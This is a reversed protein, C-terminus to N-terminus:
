LCSNTINYENAKLNAMIVTNYPSIYMENPRRKYTINARGRFLKLAKEYDDRSVNALRLLQDLSYKGRDDKDMDIVVTSLKLVTAKAKKLSEKDGNARSIVTKETTPWPADFRCYKGKKKKCTTTCRHTQVKNVLESLEPYKDKDPSACTIHKDIFTAVKDDSDEDVKPADKVHLIAHVHKTGTLRQFEGREDFNIIQGIPHLGSMVVKNFVSQFIHDIQRAVVVPNRKLINIKTKSDMAKIEEDTFNGMSSCRAAVKILEVWQFQAASWTM